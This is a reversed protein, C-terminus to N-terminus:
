LTLTDHEPFQAAGLKTQLLNAYMQIFVKLSPDLFHKKMMMMYNSQSKNLKSSGFESFLHEDREQM